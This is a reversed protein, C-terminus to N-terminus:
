EHIWDLYPNRRNNALQRAAVAELSGCMPCMDWKIGDEDEYAEEYLVADFCICCLFHHEGRMLSSDVM